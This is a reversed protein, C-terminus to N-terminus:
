CGKRGPEGRQHQTRSYQRSRHSCCGRYYRRRNRMLRRLSGGRFDDMRRSESALALTFYRNAYDSVQGEEVAERLDLM